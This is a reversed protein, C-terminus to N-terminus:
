SRRTRPKSHPKAQPPFELAEQVAHEIEKTFVLRVAEGGVGEEFLTKLAVTIDGPESSRGFGRGVKSMAFEVVERATRALRRKLIEHLGIATEVDIGAKYLRAGLAVLAPSEVLYRRQTGEGHPKIAGSRTLTSIVGPPPDGIHKRLEQETLLKPADDSLSGLQEGVGLWEHILNADLNRRSVIDRIARLRLGKDQLEGVIKLREVHSDDYYAVRGRKRPAPLVGRAQYFRITRSPLGSRVALDDITYEGPGPPADSSQPPSHM